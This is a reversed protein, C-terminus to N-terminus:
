DDSLVLKQAELLKILKAIEKAGIDGKCLIRYSVDSSLKGRSLEFEGGGTSVEIPLVPPPAPPLSSKQEIIVENMPIGTESGEVFVWKQGEHEQVARVKIPAPFQLVGSSEWQVLDGVEVKQDSKGKNNPQGSDVEEGNLSDSKSLKAFEITKKYDSLFGKVATENFKKDFILESRVAGDDPMEEIEGYRNWCWAYIEPDLAADKIAQEREKSNAHDKLIRYARDTIQIKRKEKQGSDDILGFSKLAAVVKMGNTSVPTFGWKPLIDSVFVSNLKGFNYLKGARDIATELDICPYSPSRIRGTPKKNAM